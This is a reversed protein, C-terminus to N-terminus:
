TRTHWENLSMDREGVRRSNIIVENQLHLPQPLIISFLNRFNISEQFYINSVFYLVSNGTKTM